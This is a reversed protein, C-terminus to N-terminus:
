IMNYKNYLVFDIVRVLIDVTYEVDMEINLNRDDREYNKNVITTNSIYVYYLLSNKAM